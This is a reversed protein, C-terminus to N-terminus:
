VTTSNTWLTTYKLDVRQTSGQTPWPTGCIEGRTTNNSSCVAGPSTDNDFGTLARQNGARPYTARRGRTGAWRKSGDPHEVTRIGRGRKCWMGEGPEGRRRSGDPHAVTRIGGESTDCARGQKRELTEEVDILLLRPFHGEM